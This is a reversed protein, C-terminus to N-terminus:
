KIPNYVVHAGTPPPLRPVQGVKFVNFLLFFIGLFKSIDIKQFIMKVCQRRAGM